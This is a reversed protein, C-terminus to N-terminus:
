KDNALQWKDFARNLTDGPEIQFEGSFGSCKVSLGKNNAIEIMSKLADLIHEGPRPEYLIKASGQIDM